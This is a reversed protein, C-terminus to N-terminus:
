VQFWAYTGVTGDVLPVLEVIYVGSGMLAQATTGGTLGTNYLKQVGNSIFSVVTTTTGGVRRFLISKGLADITITPLTITFATAGASVSYFSYFPTSITTAATIVSNQSQHPYLINTLNLQAGNIDVNGLSQLSSVVTKDQTRGLRITNPVNYTANAGIVTCFSADSSANYGLCSAYEINQIQGGTHARSGLLTSYRYPERFVGFLVGSPDTGSEFGLATNHFFNVFSGDVYSYCGNGVGTCNTYSRLTGYRTADHGIIVNEQSPNTNSFYGVGMFSGIMITKNQFTTGTSTSDGAFINHGICIVRNNSFDTYSRIDAGILIEKKNAKAIRNGILVSETLNEREPLSTDLLLQNGILVNDTFNKAPTGAAGIVINNSSATSAPDTAFNTSIGINNSGRTTYFFPTGTMNLTGTIQNSGIMSVNNLQSLSGTIYSNNSQDAVKIGNYKQITLVGIGFVYIRNSTAQTDRFTWRLRAPTKVEFILSRQRWTGGSARLDIDNYSLLSSGSGLSVTLSTSSYTTGNRVTSQWTALYMGTDLTPPAEVYFTSNSATSGSSYARYLCYFNGGSPPPSGYENFGGVGGNVWQADYGTIGALLVTGSMTWGQISVTQNRINTLMFTSSNTTPATGSGDTWLYNQVTINSLNRTYSFETGSSIVNGTSIFNNSSTINGSFTKNGTITQVTNLTMYNSLDISNFKTDVYLKNTLQSNSTLTSSNEPPSSFTKVGTITESISGTKYMFNTDTYNKNVLQSATSPALGCEPITDFFTMKGKVTQISSASNGCLFNQNLTLNGEILVNSSIDLLQTQFYNSTINQANTINGNEITLTGDSITIVGNMSRAYISKNLLSQSM